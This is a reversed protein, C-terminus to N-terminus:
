RAREYITQAEKLVKEQIHPSLFGITNLDVSRGFIESLEDQMAVFEWGPIHEADFEVLVDIDSEASFDRRVVSGFLSLKRIHNKECFREISPYPISIAAM